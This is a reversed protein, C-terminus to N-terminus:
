AAAPDRRRADGSCPQCRSRGRARDAAHARRHLIAPPLTASSPQDCSNAANTSRADARLLLSQPITLELLKATKLNIMLEFKTPQEVPLDAPKAGETPWPATGHDHAM